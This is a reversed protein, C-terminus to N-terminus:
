VANTPVPPVPSKEAARRSPTVTAVPARRKRGGGTPRTGTSPSQGAAPATADSAIEGLADGAAPRPPQAAIEGRVVRVDQPAEIGIRVANGHIKVVTVVIQGDILIQEQSKRTLVLM